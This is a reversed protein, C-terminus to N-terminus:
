EKKEEGAEQGHVAQDTAEAAPQPKNLHEPPNEETLYRYVRSFLDRFADPLATIERPEPMDQTLRRSAGNVAHLIRLQQGNRELVFGVFVMRKKEGERMLCSGRIAYKGDVGEEGLLHTVNEAGVPQAGHKRAAIGLLIDREWVTNNAFVKRLLPDTKFAEVSVPHQGDAYLRLGPFKEFLGPTYSSIYFGKGRNQKKDAPVVTLRASLWVEEGSRGVKVNVVAFGDMKGHVLDYLTVFGREEEPAVSVIRQIQRRRGEAAVREADTERRRRTEEEQGLKFSDYVVRPVFEARGKQISEVVGRANTMVVFAVFSLYTPIAKGDKYPWFLLHCLYPDTAMECRVGIGEAGPVQVREFLMLGIERPPKSDKGAERAPFLTYKGNGLFFQGPATFGPRQRIEAVDGASLLHPKVEGAFSAQRQQKAEELAQLLIPVACFITQEVEPDEYNPVLFKKGWQFSGTTDTNSVRLFWAQDAEQILVSVAERNINPDAAITRMREALEKAQARKQQRAVVALILGDKAELVAVGNEFSALLRRNRDLNAQLAATAREAAVGSLSSGASNVALGLKKVENRLIEMEEWVNLLSIEDAARGVDAAGTEQGRGLRKERIGAVLDRFAEPSLDEGEPVTGGSASDESAESDAVAGPNELVIAEVEVDGGDNEAEHAEAEQGAVVSKGNGDRAFSAASLGAKEFADGLNPM